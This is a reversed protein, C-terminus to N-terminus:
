MADTFAITSPFAPNIWHVKRLSKPVLCPISAGHFGSPTVILSVM